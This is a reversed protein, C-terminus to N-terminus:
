KLFRKKIEEHSVTRGEEIDKLGREIKEKVYFEYILDDWTIEDPLNKILKIAEEKVATMSIGGKM